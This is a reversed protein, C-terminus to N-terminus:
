AAVAASMYRPQWSISGDSLSWKGHLSIASNGFPGLRRVVEISQLNNGDLLRFYCDELVVFPGSASGSTFLELAAANPAFALKWDAMLARKLKSAKVEVPESELSAILKDIEIVNREEKAFEVLLKSAVMASDAVMLKAARVRESNPLAIGLGATPRLAAMAAAHAVSIHIAVLPLCTSRM